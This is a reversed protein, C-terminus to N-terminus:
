TPRSRARRRDGARIGSRTTWRFRHHACGRSKKLPTSDPACRLAKGRNQEFEITEDAVTKLLQGSGDTSGDNVGIITADPLFRRVGKVVNALTPESNYAPVIVVLPEIL